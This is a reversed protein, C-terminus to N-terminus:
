NLNFIIIKPKLIKVEILQYPSYGIDILSINTDINFPINNYVFVFHKINDEDVFNKIYDLIDEVCTTTFPLQKLQNGIQIQFM